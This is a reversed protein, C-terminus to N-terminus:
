KNLSIEKRIINWSVIAACVQFCFDFICLVFKAKFANNLRKMKNRSNGSVIIEAVSLVLYYMRQIDLMLYIAFKHFIVVTNILIDIFIFVINFVLNNSIRATLSFEEFHM